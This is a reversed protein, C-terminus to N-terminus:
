RGGSKPTQMYISSVPVFSYGGFNEINSWAICDEKRKRCGPIIEYSDGVQVTYHFPEFTEITGDAGHQKIEQRKLDANDGGTFVITGATFYDAAEARSSDRFMKRSIVHTITGTETIPGLAVGCGAYEQGGFTKQCGATYTQGVSQNLVDVLAMEEIVYRDDVLTTKGLISALVPEEDEVPNNWTTAFLYARANDFVGSAIEDKGIGAIGAIGEIDVLSASMGSGSSYGSFEYGTGTLYVEANSM